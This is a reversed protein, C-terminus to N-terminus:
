AGEMSRAASLSANRMRPRCLHGCAQTSAHMKCKNNVSRTSANKLAVEMIYVKRDIQVRPWTTLNRRKTLRCDRLENGLFGIYSSEAIM